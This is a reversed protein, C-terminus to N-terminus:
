VHPRQEGDSFNGQIDRLLGNAKHQEDLIQGLVSEKHSPPWGKLICQIDLLLGNTKHLEDLIRSLMAWIALALVIGVALLGGWHATSM